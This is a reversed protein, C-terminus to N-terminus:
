KLKEGLNHIDGAKAMLMAQQATILRFESNSVVMASVDNMIPPWELDIIFSM